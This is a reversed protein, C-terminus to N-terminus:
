SSHFIHVGESQELVESVIVIRVAILEPNSLFFKSDEYALTTVRSVVGRTACINDGGMPYGIVMTNEYLEPILNSIKLVAM